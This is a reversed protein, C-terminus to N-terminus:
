LLHILPFVRFNSVCKQAPLNMVSALDYLLDVPFHHLLILALQGVEAEIRIIIDM